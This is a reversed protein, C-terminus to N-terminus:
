NGAEYAMLNVTGATVPVLVLATFQPDFMIILRAM